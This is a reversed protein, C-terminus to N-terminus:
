PHQCSSWLGAWCVLKVSESRDLRKAIHTLAEEQKFFRRLNVDRELEHVAGQTNILSLNEEQQACLSVSATDATQLRAM